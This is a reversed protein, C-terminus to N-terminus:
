GDVAIREVGEWVTAMHDSTLAVLSDVAAAEDPAAGLDRMAKTSSVHHVHVLDDEPTEYLATTCPLLGALSRDIDLADRAVEAHCMVIMAARDISEGLAGEVMRDMRTVKITEFGALEHEIQVRDVAEQFEMSLTAHLAEEVAPSTPPGDTSSM